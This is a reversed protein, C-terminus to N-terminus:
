TTQMLEKATAIVNALSPLFHTEDYFPLFDEAGHLIKPAVKLRGRPLNDLLSRVYLAYGGYPPEDQVILVRGTKGASQLITEHDLPKIFGLSVVEVANPGTQVLLEKAADEALAATRGAAVITLREGSQIVMAKGAPNEAAIENSRNHISRDEFFLTPTRRNLAERFSWYAENASGPMAINLDPVNYFWSVGVENGQPGHGRFRAVPLRIIVPCTLRGNSLYHLKAASQVIAMHCVSAIDAYAIMVVVKMGKMAAGVAMGVMASESISCDRVRQTGYTEALAKLAHGTLNQGIIVLRPENRMSDQLAKGVADRYTIKAM